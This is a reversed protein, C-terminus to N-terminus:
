LVPNPWTAVGNVEPGSMMVQEFPKKARKFGLVSGQCSPGNGCQQAVYLNGDPGFSMFEPFNFFDFPDLIRFAKTKGPKYGLVYTSTFFNGVYIDGAPNISLGWARILGKLHLPKPTSSGAAIEFVDSAGSQPDFNTVYLNGAADLALSGLSNFSASAISSSPTTAGPSYVYIAATQSCYSGCNSVYVTGNADVAVGLPFLVGNLITPAGTYPPAYVSVYEQQSNVFNDNVVYVDGAADTTLQYQTGVLSNTITGVPGANPNKLNYINVGEAGTPIFLLQSPLARHRAPAVIASRASVNAHPTVPACFGATPGAVALLVALGSAVCPASLRHPTSM